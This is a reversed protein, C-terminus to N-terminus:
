KSVLIFGGAGPLEVPASFDPAPAASQVGGIEPRRWAAKAGDFGLKAADFAFSARQTDNAFNAAVLVARGKGKWVSAKVAAAGSVKVPCDDDWWGVLEMDGLGVEDFFKWLTQPKGGWGWRDTMGFLLGRFPNGRGLMEGPLGFALGSREMLWFDSPTNNSFGEGRWLLDFYPYLDIFSLNTSNSGAHPNHHNWSHNDVLRRKGDRDLIRRARQMSVGTLATDDIYIGDIGYERVLYDLGALYFNDWRTDPTTIVALDLRNPYASFRVNERWAPLIDMGVHRRLWPHPGNRNTIPWGPVSPDRKLLVEGDLSKLAFFEPLNQTLERTTYYVKLLIGADHASKAANRLLPGGDDNYPYNIYPNWVTNHHLNVVTAGANRLEKANMNGRRQGFHFYRESLHAKMDVPHFPTLYLEFNWEAGGPADFGAAKVSAEGDPLKEMAITGGGSAWSEPMAITRWRYYANILPRRYNAGRFRVAFGGNIRGMWVSDRCHKEDWKQELKEGPAFNGGNRGLGERFRAVDAPMRVELSAKAVKAGEHRIRFFGTGTFDMRGEVIRKVNGFSTEARWSACTPKVETFRFTSASPASLGDETFAFPKSLLNFGKDEMIRTNSGNFRSVIQAPLGDEGLALERGLLKVTRTAADASVPTYPKTVTDERGIDSNLWKLRALRWADSVGGDELVKGAVAIEFPLAANWGTKADAVTVKGRFTKGAADKPIDVMVWIPKVGNAEVECTEPTIRTVKLETGASWRLTRREDSAVCVQFPYFEGPQAKGKFAEAALNGKALWHMPVINNRVAYHRDEGFLRFQAPRAKKYAAWAVPDVANEMWEMVSDEPMTGDVVEPINDDASGIERLAIWDLNYGNTVRGTPLVSYAPQEAATQLTDFDSGVVDEGHRAHYKAYLVRGTVDGGRQSLRIKVCKTYGSDFVQCQAELSHRDASRTSHCIKAAGKCMAPTGDVRRRGAKNFWCKALRFDALSVGKFLVIDNTATMLRGSNTADWEPPKTAASAAFATAAICVALGNLIMHKAKM